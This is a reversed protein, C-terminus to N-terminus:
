HHRLFRNKIGNLKNITIDKIATIRPGTKACFVLVVPLSKSLTRFEFTLSPKYHLVLNDSKVIVLLYSNM